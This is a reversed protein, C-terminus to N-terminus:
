VIKMSILSKDVIDVLYPDTLISSYKESHKKSVDEWEIRHDSWKKLTPDNIMEQDNAPDVFKKVTQPLDFRNTNIGLTSYKAIHVLKGDLQHKLWYTEDYDYVAFRIDTILIVDVDTKKIDEDVKDIWYRGKSQKRKIGGYWVLLPRFIDKDETLESWVNISLKDSVFEECDKKIYYALAFSASSLNYKDLLLREAIDSYLDKGVRAVGSIGIYKKTKM